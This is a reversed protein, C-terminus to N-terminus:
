RCRRTGDGRPHRVFSATLDRGVRESVQNFMGGVDGIMARHKSELQTGLEDNVRRM